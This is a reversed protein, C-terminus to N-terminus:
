MMKEDMQKIYKEFSEIAKSTAKDTLHADGNEDIYYWERNPAWYSELKTM